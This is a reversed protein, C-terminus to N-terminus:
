ATGGERTLRRPASAELPELPAAGAAPGSQMAVSLVLYGVGYVVMSSFVMLKGGPVLLRVAWAPVCALLSIAAIRGLDAWRFMHRLSVGLFRRGRLLMALRAVTESFITGGIAGALGFWHMGALVSIATGVVRAANFAFLFRTDGAARLLADVPVIWIPIELTALMFLPVSADYKHTFLIPLLRPGLLWAGCAAPFLLAALKHMADHWEEVAAASTARRGSAVARGLRVMLVETIPTFVIDVVPLHFSAVMFLAYTATDFQASVAYQSFFRQGVYLLSAGAFPLAFTLQARFTARRPRAIPLTRDAVLLILAGVRLVAIVMAAWFVAETGGILRAALILAATRAVDTLVYSLAASGVRGESTLTGELPATALMAGAYLALPLRVRMLMEDKLWAALAPASLYLAAGSLLGLCLVSLLAQSVYAGRQRGRPLFYYLSQTLGLQGVLLVTQAVLFFQKYTGFAAPTMLRALVLPLAFTVAASVLRGVVLPSAQGFFAGLRLRERIGTRPQLRTM